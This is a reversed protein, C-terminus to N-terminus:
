EATAMYNVPKGYNRKEECIRQRLASKAEKTFETRSKRLTIHPTSM